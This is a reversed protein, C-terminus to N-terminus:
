ETKGASGDADPAVREVASVIEDTVREIPQDGNVATVLGRAQYYDLLPATEAYYLDLRREVAAPTDDERQILEGGCVDCVGLRHPPNFEVHYVHGCRACVRRGTLRQVLQDRPVDLRVVATIAEGRRALVADLAEAQRRTRPFGDYLAGRVGEGVSRERSLEDLKEEVLAVTLEDPVLDGRDYVDKIRRGLATEAKIARRFLEGTAILILGLRPGVREAQTGKGSGQPGM